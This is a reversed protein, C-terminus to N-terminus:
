STGTGTPGAPGREPAPPRPAGGAGPALADLDIPAIAPPTRLIVQPGGPAVGDPEDDRRAVALRWGVVALGLVFSLSAAVRGAGGLELLLERDVSTRITGVVYMGTGLVLGAWLVLARLLERARAARPSLVFASLAGLLGWGVSTAGLSAAFALDEVALASLFALPGIFLLASGLAHPLHLDRDEERQLLAAFLSLATAAQVLFGVALFLVSLCDFITPERM